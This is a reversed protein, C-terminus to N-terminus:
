RQCMKCHHTRPPKFAQCKRCWRNRALAAENSTNQDVESNVPHWNIPVHGPNVLCARAYCIWLCGVLINFTYAQTIELSHPEIRLFLVQSAYALVAILSSVAVPALFPLRDMIHSPLSSNLPFVQSTTFIPTVWNTNTREVMKELQQQDMLKLTPIEADIKECADQDRAAEIAAAVKM